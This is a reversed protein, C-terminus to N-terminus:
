SNLEPEFNFFNKFINLTVEKSRLTQALIKDSKLIKFFSIYVSNKFFIPTSTDIKKDTFFKRMEIFKTRDEKYSGGAFKCTGAILIFIGLLGQHIGFSYKLSTGIYHFSKNHNYNIKVFFVGIDKENLTCIKKELPVELPLSYYSGLKGYNKSRLRFGNDQLPKGKLGNWIINESRYTRLGSKVLGHYEYLDEFKIWKTLSKYDNM